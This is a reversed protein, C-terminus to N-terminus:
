GPFEAGSMPYNHCRKSRPGGRTWFIIKLTPSASTTSFLGRILVSVCWSRRWRCTFTGICLDFSFDYDALLQVRRIFDARRAFANGDPEHQIIRRIGKVLKNEALRDLDDRAAEAKELPAWPVVGEIRPDQQRAIATVWALEDMFQGRDCECQVFVMKAVGVSETARQYDEILHAGKIPPVEDLWDYSLLQPDWLHLHTDVVPFDVM